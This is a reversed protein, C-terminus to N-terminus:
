EKTGTIWRFDCKDAGGAISGTRTLKGGWQQALPFDLKCFTNYCVDGLGFKIFLEAVHCRTCNFAVNNKDTEVEAWGYDPATFPFMRFIQTALEMRKHPNDSFIGAILM